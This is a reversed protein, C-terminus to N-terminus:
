RTWPVTGSCSSWSTPRVPSTRGRRLIGRQRGTRQVPLVPLRRRGGGARAARRGVLRRGGARQVRGPRSRAARDRRGRGGRRRRFAARAPVRDAGPRHLLVAEPPRRRVWSGVPEAPVAPLPQDAAAEDPSVQWRHAPSPRSTPRTSCRSRPSAVPPARRARHAKATATRRAPPGSSPQDSGTSRAPSASRVPSSRGAVALRRASSRTAPGSSAAAACRLRLRRAGLRDTDARLATLTDAVRDTPGFHDTM